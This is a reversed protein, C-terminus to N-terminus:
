RQVIVVKRARLAPEGHQNTFRYEFHFIDMTAGGKGTSTKGDTLTMIGMLTDGPFIPTLYEFAEEGHLVSNVDVGLSTWQEMMEPYGLGWFAFVTGSTPYMPVDAYGAAQAAERSRYIPNDDGIAIALERVKGREVEVTFPPFSQGIKSSDFM